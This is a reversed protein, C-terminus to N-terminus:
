RFRPNTERERKRERDRERKREREQKWNQIIRTKIIGLLPMVQKWIMEGINRFKWWTRSFMPICRPKWIWMWLKTCPVKLFMLVWCLKQFKSIYSIYQSVKQNKLHNWSASIHLKKQNVWMWQQPTRTGWFWLFDKNAKIIHNHFCPFINRSITKTCTNSPVFNKPLFLVALHRIEQCNGSGLQRM